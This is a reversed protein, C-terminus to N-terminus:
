FRVSVAGINSFQARWSQGATVDHNSFSGTIVRMGAELTEGCDALTNALISLSLFHDDIQNNDGIAQAVLDERCRCEMRVSSLDLGAPLPSLTEGIVLGWQSLNDAVNLAFDAIGQARDEVLEFAASAGAVAARVQAPTVGPGSLTKGIIFCLEPELGANLARSIPVLTGAAYTDAAMIHGFPRADTGYRKRARASTLGVKWGAQKGGGAIKRDRVGLQVRLADALTLRGRLAPPFYAGGQAETWILEAAEQINM